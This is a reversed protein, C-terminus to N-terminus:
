APLTEIKPRVVNRTKLSFGAGVLVVRNGAGLYREFYRKEKIQALAAASSGKIKFEFVYVFGPVRVVADIRGLNTRVEAEIDLGIMLFVAYFLSQWYKEADVAIDYPIAAFFAKLAELMGRADGAQLSRVMRLDLRDLDAARPGVASKALHYSFSGAVEQNPFGLRYTTRNVGQITEKITLYGTQVLLPLIAPEEPEYVSFAEEPAEPSDLDVPTKRIMEMLFTPTGTEFWWNKFERADLCKGVSVPNFMDPGNRHFRYGDYWHVLRAFAQDRTTGLAAALADLHEPFNALVEEHTYGLLAAARADMTLDTLNNLDSFISVKSFKSVGTVLVFRQLPETTKVVSYFAKLASKVGSVEPRGLLGLLPKDYEDILVAIKGTPSKAAAARCLNRFRAPVSDWSEPELGLDHQINALQGDLRAMLEAGDSAQSSGMDLHIVPVATWDWPLSDIALGKFLERRAEFLAKITSVLLSKGFRRPRALFYQPSVESALAHITATKDVYVAGGEVLRSFTFTSTSIPKMARIKAFRAERRLRVARAPAPSSPPRPNHLLRRRNRPFPGM